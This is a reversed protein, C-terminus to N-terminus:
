AQDQRYDQYLLFDEDDTTYRVSYQSLGYEMLDDVYEIFEQDVECRFKIM